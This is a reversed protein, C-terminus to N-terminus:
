RVVARYPNDEPRRSAFGEDWAKELAEYLTRRYTDPDLLYRVLKTVEETPLEPTALLMRLRDLVAAYAAANETAQEHLQMVRELLLNTAKLQSLTLREEAQLKEAPDLELGMDPTTM